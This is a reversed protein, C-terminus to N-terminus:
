RTAISANFQFKHLCYQRVSSSNSSSVKIDWVSLQWMNVTNRIEMCVVFLWFLTSFIWSLGKNEKSKGCMCCSAVFIHFFDLFDGCIKSNDDCTHFFHVRGSLVWPIKWVINLINDDHPFQSFISSQDFSIGATGIRNWIICPFSKSSDFSVSSAWDSKLYYM